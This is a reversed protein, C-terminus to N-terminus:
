LEFVVFALLEKVKQEWDRRIGEMQLSLYSVLWTKIKYFTKSSLTIFVIVFGWLLVFDM